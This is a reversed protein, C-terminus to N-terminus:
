GQHHDLREDSRRQQFIEASCAIQRAVRDRRGIENCACRQRRTLEANDRPEIKGREGKSHHIWRDLYGGFACISVPDRRPLHDRDNASRCSRNQAGLSRRQVEQAM